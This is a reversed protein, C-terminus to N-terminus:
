RRKRRSVSEKLSEIYNLLAQDWSTDADWEAGLYVDGTAIHKVYYKYVPANVPYQLLSVAGNRKKITIYDTENADPNYDLMTKISYGTTNLFRLIHQYGRKSIEKEPDESDLLFFEFPYKDMITKLRENRRDMEQNYRQIFELDQPNTEGEPLLPLKRFLSVGLPLIKLDSLYAEFRNGKIVSATSFFEPLETMLHNSRALKQKLLTRRLEKLVEDLELSQYRWIGRGHAMLNENGSFPAITISYHIKTGGQDSRKAAQLVVVNKIERRKLFNVYTSTADSGSRIDDLYYYAVPDIGLRTITKHVYEAMPKWERRENYTTPRPPVRVLVVSRTSLLDSPFEFSNYIFGEELLLDFGSSNQAVATPAGSWQSYLLCLFSCYILRM